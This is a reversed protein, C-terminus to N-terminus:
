PEAMGLKVFTGFEVVAVGVLEAILERRKVTILWM